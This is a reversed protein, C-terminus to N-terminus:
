FVWLSLGIFYLSIDSFSFLICLSCCSLIWFIYFLLVSNSWYYLTINCSVFFTIDDFQFSIYDLYCFILETVDVLVFSILCVSFIFFYDNLSINNSVGFTVYNRFLCVHFNYMLIFIIINDLMLGINNLLFVSSCKNNLFTCNFISITFNYFRLTFHELKIFLACFLRFLYLYHMFIWLYYLNFALSFRHNVTTFLYFNVLKAIDMNMLFLKDLFLTFSCKNVSICYLVWPAFNYSNLCINDLDLTVWLTIHVLMFGLNNLLLAFHSHYLSIFNHIRIALHNSFFFISNLNLASLISWNKFMFFIYYFLLSHCFNDLSVNNFVSITIYNLRLSFYSFNLLSFFSNFYALFFFNNFSNIFILDLSLRLLHLFLNFNNFICLPIYDSSLLFNSFVLISVSHKYISASHLVRLTFNDSLLSLNNVYYLSFISRLNLPMNNIVALRIVFHQNLFTNWSFVNVPWNYSCLCLSKFYLLQFIASDLLSFHIYNFLIPTFNYMNPVCDFILTSSKKAFCWVCNLKFCYLSIVHRKWNLLLLVISFHVCHLFHVNISGVIIVTLSIQM